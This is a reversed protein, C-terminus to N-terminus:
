TATLVATIQENMREVTARAAEAFDEGSSAFIVGRSNNIIMGQGRSDAGARVTAELDGGQAGVGPILIPMDGVIRRVQALESPATAGVVLCCNGNANWDTAVNHAVQLYLPISTPWTKGTEWDGEDTLGLTDSQARTIPIQIDQFEGAGPNSTRCLVIVGKDARNLFPALSEKGMYPPVTIADARLWDFAAAVYGDNTNGIDGRKGDLIVPVDPATRKIMSLTRDLVEWGIPGREEYFALNPKYSCVIDRTAMVIEYNFNAQPDIGRRRPEMLHPPLKAFKSDLGVCVFKGEDFKAQLKEMFTTM